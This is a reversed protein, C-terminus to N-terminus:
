GGNHVQNLVMQTLFSGIVRELTTLVIILIIPAIDIALGLRRNIGRFPKYLPDTLKRITQVLPNYPDAGVWSVIVSAIVLLLVINFSINILIKIGEVLAVSM